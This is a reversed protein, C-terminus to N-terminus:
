YCTKGNKDTRLFYDNERSEDSIGDWNYTLGAIFIDSSKLLLISIVKEIGDGGYSTNWLLNGNENICSIQINKPSNYLNSSNYAVIYKKDITYEVSQCNDLCYGSLKVSWLPIGSTDTKFLYTSFNLDGVILSYSLSDPSLIYKTSYVTYPADPPFTKTWNVIGSDNLKTLFAKGHGGHSDLSDVYGGVLIENTNLYLLSGVDGILDYTKRWVLEGTSDYKELAYMVSSYYLQSNPIAYEIIVGDNNIGAIYYAWHNVKKKVYVNGLTDILYLVRYSNSEGCAILWIKKDPRIYHNSIVGFPYTFEWQKQMNLASYKILGNETITYFSNSDSACFLHEKKIQINGLKSYYKGNCIVPETKKHVDDYETTFICSCILLLFFTLIKM